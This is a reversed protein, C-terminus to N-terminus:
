LTASPTTLFPAPLDSLISDNSFPLPIPFFMGLLSFMFTNLFGQSLFSSSMNSSLLCTLTSPFLLISTLSFVPVVNCLVKHARQCALTRSKIRFIFLINSHAVAEWSVLSVHFVHDAVFHVTDMFYSSLLWPPACIRLLM